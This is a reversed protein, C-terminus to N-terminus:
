MKRGKGKEVEDITPINPIIRQLKQYETILEKFDLVEIEKISLKLLLPNQANIQKIAKIIAKKIELRRALIEHYQKGDGENLYVIGAKKLVSEDPLEGNYASEIEKEGLFEEHEQEKEQEYEAQESNFLDSCLEEISIQHLREKAKKVTKEPAPEIATVKKKGKRIGLSKRIEALENYTMKTLELRTYQKGVYGNEKVRALIDNIYRPIAESIRDYLKKLKYDELNAIYEETYETNDRLWRRYDARIDGRLVM